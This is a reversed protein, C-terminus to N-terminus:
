SDILKLTERVLNEGYGNIKWHDPSWGKLFRHFDAWAFPYLSRWEDEVSESAIDPRHRTLAKKLFAFYADLLSEEQRECEKEDLCSGIFYALDKMGCGGGVYQFDVGAVENGAESFCFNAIKADGHVLTQYRGSNLKRDIRSAANRLKDDKLNELELPRTELHWYTGTKWLGDPSFGLFCAHFRALWQLCAKVQEPFLSTHRVPFEAADLDELILITELDSQDCGIFRPLRPAHACKDNWHEYWHCEVSYSKLKRQHSIDSNWGRPHRSVPSLRIDKVIVSDHPCGELSVKLIEGYGSWLNQIREIGTISGAGTISQIKRKLNVPIQVPLPM